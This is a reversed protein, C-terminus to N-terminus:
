TIILVFRSFIQPFVKEWMVGETMRAIQLGPDVSRVLRNHKLKM